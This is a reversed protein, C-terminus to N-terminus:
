FGRSAAWEDYDIVEEGPSDCGNIAADLEAEEKRYREYTKASLSVGRKTLDFLRPRGLVPDITIRRM